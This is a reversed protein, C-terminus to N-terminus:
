LKLQCCGRRQCHFLCYGSYLLRSNIRVHLFYELLSGNLPPIDYYSYLRHPLVGSLRRHLSYVSRHRFRVIYISPSGPRWWMSLLRLSYALMIRWLSLLPSPPRCLCCLRHLFKINKLLCQESSHVPGCKPLPLLPNCCTHRLHLRMCLPRGKCNM